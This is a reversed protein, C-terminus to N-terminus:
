RRGTLLSRDGCRVTADTDEHRRGELLEGLLAAGDAARDRPEPKRGHHEFEARPRVGRAVQVPGIERLAVDEHADVPLAIPPHRRALTHRTQLVLVQKRTVQRPQQVHLGWCRIPFRAHVFQEAPDAVM